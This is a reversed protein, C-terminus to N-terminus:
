KESLMERIQGATGFALFQGDGASLVYAASNQRAAHFRADQILTQAEVTLEVDVPQQVVPAPAVHVAEMNVAKVKADRVWEKCQAWQEDTYSSLSHIVFVHVGQIGAYETGEREWTEGGLTVLEDRRMASKAKRMEAKERELEAREADMRKKEAAQKEAEAKLEADKAKREAEAKEAAERAAKERDAKAQLAPQLKAIKWNEFAADNWTNLDVPFLVLEDLRYEAGTFTMGAGIVFSARAKNRDEIKRLEEQRIRELERDYKAMDEELPIEIARIRAQLGSGMTTGLYGDFKKKLDNLPAFLDKRFNDIGTRVRTLATLTKQVQARSAEDVVPAVMKVRREIEAIQEDHIQQYTKGETEIATNNKPFPLEKLRGEIVAEISTPQLATSM